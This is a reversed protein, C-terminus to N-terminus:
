IFAIFRILSYICIVATLVYIFAKFMKSEEKELGKGIMVFGIILPILMYRSNMSCSYPMSINLYLYSIWWSIYTLLLMKNEKYNIIMYYISILLLMLAALAVFGELITQNYVLGFNLSTYLFYNWLNYGNMFLINSLGFRQWLSYHAVSLNEYPQIFGITNLGNLLSRFQFWLGLVGSVAAFVVLQVLLGGVKKDEKIYQTLMKFYVYVAPIVMVVISTKTMLGLGIWLALLFANKMSPNNQWKLTYLLALSSFMLVLMDNNISGSLFINLPYFAMLIMPLIRFKPKIELEKLMSYVAWMTICSYIVSLIQMSEIKIDSGVNFNDMFTLFAAMIAHHLPPHYFQGMVENPLEIENYLKMIYHIHRALYPEEAYNSYIRDYEEVSDMPLNRGGVDFQYELTDTKIIYFLRLSIALVVILIIILKYNKTIKEM